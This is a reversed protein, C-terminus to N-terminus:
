HPEELSPRAPANAHDHEQGAMPPPPSLTDTVPAAAASPGVADIFCILATRDRDTMFTEQPSSLIARAYALAHAPAVPCTIAAAATGPEALLLAM